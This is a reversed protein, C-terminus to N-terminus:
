DRSSDMDNDDEKLLAYGDGIKYIRCRHGEIEILDGIKFGKFKIM